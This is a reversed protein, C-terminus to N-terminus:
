SSREDELIWFFYRLIFGKIEDHWQVPFSLCLSFTADLVLVNNSDKTTQLKFTTKRIQFENKLVPKDSPM